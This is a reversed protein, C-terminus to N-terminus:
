ASGRNRELAERLAPWQLRLSEVELWELVLDRHKQLRRVDDRVRELAKDRRSSATLLHAHTTGGRNVLKAETPASCAEFEELAEKYFAVGEGIARLTKAVEAQQFRLKAAAM